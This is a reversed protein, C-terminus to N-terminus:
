PLNSVVQLVHGVVGVAHDFFISEHPDTSDPELRAPATRYRKFMVQEDYKLVYYRGPVLSKDAVDVIIASGEPAIRNMSSGTVRLAILNTRSSAVNMHGDFNYLTGLTTTESLGGAQAWGVLPVKVVPTDSLQVTSASPLDLLMELSWDLGRAIGALTDRRPNRSKARLVNRIADPTLGGDM